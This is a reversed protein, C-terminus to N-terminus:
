SKVSPNLGSVCGSNLLVILSVLPDSNLARRGRKQARRRKGRVKYGLNGHCAASGKMTDWMSNLEQDWM